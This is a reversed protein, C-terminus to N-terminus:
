PFLLEINLAMIYMKIIINIYCKLIDVHIHFGSPTIHFILSLGHTTITFSHERSENLIM